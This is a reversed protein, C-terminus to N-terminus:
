RDLSHISAEQTDLRNDVRDMFEEVKALTEKFSGIRQRHDKAEAEVM